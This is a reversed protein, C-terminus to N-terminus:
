LFKKRHLKDNSSSLFLFIKQLLFEILYNNIKPNNFIKDLPLNYVKAEDINISIDNVYNGNSDVATIKIVVDKYNRKLLFHNLFCISSLAGKLKPVILSSRHVTNKNIFQHSSIRDKEVELYPKM